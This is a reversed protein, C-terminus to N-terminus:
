RRNLDSLEEIVAKMRAIETRLNNLHHRAEDLYIPVDGPPTYVPTHLNGDLFAEIRNMAYDTDYRM